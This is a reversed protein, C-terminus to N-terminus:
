IELKFHFSTIKQLNKISGNLVDCVVKGTFEKEFVGQQQLRMFQAYHRQFQVFSNADLETLEIKILGEERM